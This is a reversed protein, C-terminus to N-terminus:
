RHGNGVRTDARDQSGQLARVREEAERVARYAAATWEGTAGEQNEDLLRKLALLEETARALEDSRM